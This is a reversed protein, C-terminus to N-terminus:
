FNDIEQSDLTLFIILIAEFKSLNNFRDRFNLREKLEFEFM